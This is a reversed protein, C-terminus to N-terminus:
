SAIRADRIITIGGWILLIAIGFGSILDPIRSSLYSNAILALFAIGMM